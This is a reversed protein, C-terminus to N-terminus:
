GERELVEEVLAVWYAAGKMLIADNFHYRPNHLPISGLADTGNGIFIFCGKTVELMYAFDESVTIPFCNHNVQEAGVVETAAKIAITTETATNVTPIFSTSCQFEYDVGAAQCLGSVIREMTKKIKDLADDTYCRTDGKITVESPIVNVTGNTIFETVSVVATEAVVSLTRSVITQLATVIQAGVVLPDTLMHPTAAHGGTGTITIEFNTESAMIHGPRTAFHGAALGPLNHMGYVSDIKWRTFLGDEIMAKAGLGHEEAPQFIFYITGDFNRSQALQYAAGLLMATHGDHGCAHMMGKNKSAYSLNTQEEIKLADMDARLGISQNSTGSKLIGVVGTGGINTHVEMGFSALKKAVMAATKKEEFGFEPYQHLQHRWSTIQQEITM